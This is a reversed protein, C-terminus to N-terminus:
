EGPSVKASERREAYVASVFRETEEDPAPDIRKLIEDISHPGSGGAAAKTARKITSKEEDM